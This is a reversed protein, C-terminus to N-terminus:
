EQDHEEAHCNLCLLQCKDLEKKIEERSRTTRGKSIGFSKDGPHHFIMAKVSRNYGCRECKGGKYEVARRKTRRRWETVNYTNKCATSCFKTHKGSLPANCRACQM